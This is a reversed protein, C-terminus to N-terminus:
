ENKTGTIEIHLLDEEMAFEFGFESYWYQIDDYYNIFRENFKYKERKESYDYKEFEFKKGFDDILILEKLHSYYEYAISRVLKGKEFFAFRSTESTTQKYGFMGITNFEQTMRRMIEDFAFLHKPEYYIHTWSSNIDMEFVITDTYKFMNPSTNALKSQRGYVFYRGIYEVVENHNGHKIIFDSHTAM